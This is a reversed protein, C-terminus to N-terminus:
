RAYAGKVLSTPALRVVAKIGKHVWSVLRNILGLQRLDDIEKFENKLYAMGRRRKTFFGDGLRALVLVEQVNAVRYGKMIFRAWLEYDDGVAGYNKYAGLGVVADKRYMVTMHNFPCRWMAYRKVEEHTEPIRREGAPISPDTKFERIWAGLLAVDPHNKLYNVQTEFRHPLCIDDADMRALWPHSAAEIGANLAASLGRNEPLRVLKLGVNRLAFAELLVDLAPTLPGDAVVVIEDAPLTQQALSDLALSFAEADDKGYVPLVVSFPFPANSQTM